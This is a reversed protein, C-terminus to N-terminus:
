LLGKEGNYGLLDATERWLEECKGVENAEGLTVTEEGWPLWYGARTPEMPEEKLYKDETVINFLTKASDEKFSVHMGPELWNLIRPFQLAISIFFRELFPRDRM